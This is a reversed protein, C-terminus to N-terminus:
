IRDDEVMGILYGASKHEPSNELVIEEPVYAFHNVHGSRRYDPLTNIPFGTTNIYTVTSKRGIAGRGLMPGGVCVVRDGPKFDTM